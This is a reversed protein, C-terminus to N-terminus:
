TCGVRDRWELYVMIALYQVYAGAIVFLHFLQHSHGVLDFKGPRWREPIRTAYIVVGVGYCVNMFFEYMTTVLAAPEGGYSALKHAIPGWGSLGMIVFVLSRVFRFEPKEFVPILSILVTLLGLALITATYVARYFPDCAFTYYIQPVISTVILTSIGAYDLHLMIYSTHESHCSLLHCASSTLLCFMAGGLFVFLPWRTIAPNPQSSLNTMQYHNMFGTTNTLSSISFGALSNTQRAYLAEAMAPIKNGGYLTLTLFIFFGILHTWVNITENHIAFVSHIADKLPWECRYHGVVFENHKLYDPLSDYNVLELKKKKEKPLLAERCSHKDDSKCTKELLICSVKREEM